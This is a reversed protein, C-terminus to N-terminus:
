RQAVSTQMTPANTAIGVTESGMVILGAESATTEVFTELATTAAEDATHGNMLHNVAIRSLTVRAIDEGAGTASAGGAPSCYFGAGVQPVDGVRGALAFWRGRTSTGAAYRNGDHAVAGVTDHGGFRDAVWELTTQSSGIPIDADDWRARDADSLLSVNTRVGYDAALTVAQEGALLIHPTEECVVRAASIAHEVGTMACAAGIDRTSQMIGADTRPVGDTQVAGSSGANFQDASELEQLATEVADIPTDSRVADTATEDLISQRQIPAEPSDGAGGHLVIRMCVSM